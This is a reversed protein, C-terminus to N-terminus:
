RRTAGAEGAPRTTTARITQLSPGGAVDDLLVYLDTSGLHRVEVFAGGGTRVLPVVASAPILGRCATEPGIGEVEVRQRDGDSRSTVVLERDCGRDDVAVLGLGHGGEEVAVISVEVVGRYAEPEDGVADCGGIALALAVAALTSLPRRM